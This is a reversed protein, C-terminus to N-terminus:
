LKHRACTRIGIFIANSIITGLFVLWEVEFWLFVAIVTKSENIWDVPSDFVYMLQTITIILTAMVISGTISCFAKAGDFHLRPNNTLINFIM